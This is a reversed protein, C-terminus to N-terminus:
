PRNAERSSISVDPAWKKTSELCVHLSHNLTRTRGTERRRGHLLCSLADNCRRTLEMEVLTTKEPPPHCIGCSGPASVSLNGRAIEPRVGPLHFGQEVRLPGHTAMDKSEM